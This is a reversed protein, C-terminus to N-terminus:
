VHIERIQELWKEGEPWPGHGSAANIHGANAIKVRSGGWSRAFFEAREVTVFPDDTRSVV